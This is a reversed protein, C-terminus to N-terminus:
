KYHNEKKQKPVVAAQLGWVLLDLIIKGKSVEDPDVSTQKPFIHGSHSHMGELIRTLMKKMIDWREHNGNLVLQPDFYCAFLVHKIM